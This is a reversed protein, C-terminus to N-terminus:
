GNKVKDVLMDWLGPTWTSGMYVVNGNTEGIWTYKERIRNGAEDQYYRYLYVNYQLADVLRVGVPVSLINKASYIQGIFRNHLERMLSRPFCKVGFVEAFRYTVSGGPVVAFEKKQLGVNYGLVDGDALTTLDIGFLSPVVYVMGLQYETDTMNTLVLESGLSIRSGELKGAYLNYTLKLGDPHKSDIGGFEGREVRINDLIEQQQQYWDAAAQMSEFMSMQARYRALAQEYERERKKLYKYAIPAAVLGVMMNDFIQQLPVAKQSM